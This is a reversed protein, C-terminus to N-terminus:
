LSLELAAVGALTGDAMLRKRAAADGYLNWRLFDVITAAAPAFGPRKADLFEGHGQGHMTLFAKPWQLNEYAALGRSYAVTKDADGHVFLIPVARGTFGGEMAGASIVVGCRLKGDRAATFMGSTTFGGASFGAACHRSGAFAAVVPDRALSDLVFEADAPQNRVDNRDFAPSHKKTFPYAPAAVVFGAGALVKALDAFGEPQGGLGHSLLVVPFRGTAPPADPSPDGGPLGDAPYWVITPLPRQESRRLALTRVGVAFGQAPAFGPGDDALEHGVPEAVIPMGPNADCAALTAALLM